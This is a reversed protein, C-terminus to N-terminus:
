RLRIKQLPVAFLLSLCVPSFTDCSYKSVYISIVPLYLYKSIYLAMGLYGYWLFTIHKQLWGNMFHHISLVVSQYTLSYQHFGIYWDYLFFRHWCHFFLRVIHILIDKPTIITSVGPQTHPLQVTPKCIHMISMDEKLYKLIRGSYSPIIVYM